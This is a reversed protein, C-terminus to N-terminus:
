SVVAGAFSQLESKKWKERLDSDGSALRDCVDDLDLFLKPDSSGLHSQGPLKDLRSFVEKREADLKKNLKEAEMSWYLREESSLVPTIDCKKM